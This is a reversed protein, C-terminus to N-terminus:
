VRLFDCALAGCWLARLPTPHLLQLRQMAAYFQASSRAHTPLECAIEVGNQFETKGDIISFDALPFM